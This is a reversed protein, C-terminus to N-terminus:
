KAFLAQGEFVIGPWGHIMFQRINQHDTGDPTKLVSQYHEAFLYLTDTKDLKNLKAFTFVKASGQNQNAENHLAGNKFATPQHNYYTEIFEIVEKFSLANDKLKKLL